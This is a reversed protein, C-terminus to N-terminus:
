TIVSLSSDEDSFHLTLLFIRHKLAFRYFLPGPRFLKGRKQSNRNSKQYCIYRYHLRKVSQHNLLQLVIVSRHERSKIDAEKTIGLFIAYIYSIQIAYIYSKQLTSDRTDFKVGFFSSSATVIPKISKKSFGSSIFRYNQIDACHKIRVIVHNLFRYTRFPQTLIIKQCLRKRRSRM